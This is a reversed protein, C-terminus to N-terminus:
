FHEKMPAVKKSILKIGIDAKASPEVVSGDLSGLLPEEVVVVVGLSSEPEDESVEVVGLVEPLLLEVGLVGTGDVDELPLLLDVPGFVGVPAAALV